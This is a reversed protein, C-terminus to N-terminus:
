EQNAPGTAPAGAQEPHAKIYAGLDEYGKKAAAQIESMHKQSIDAGAAASEKVLAPMRDLYHQGAPSSYFSIISIADEHTLYKQYIPVVAERIEDLNIVNMADDFIADLRKLLDPSANPYNQLSNARFRKKFQDGMADMGAKATNRWHLVEMLAMVDERTARDDASNDSVVAPQQALCSLSFLTVLILVVTKM